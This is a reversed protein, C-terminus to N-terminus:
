QRSEIMGKKWLSIIEQIEVQDFLEVEKDDMNSHLMMNMKNRIIEKM